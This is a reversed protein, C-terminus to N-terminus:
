WISLFFVEIFCVPWSCIVNAIYYAKTSYFRSERHCYFTGRDLYNGEMPSNAATMFLLMLMTYAYGARTTTGDADGPTNLFLTGVVFGFLVAIIIRIFSGPNRLVLTWGRALLLSLQDRFSRAFEPLPRPDEKAKTAEAVDLDEALKQGAASEAFLRPLDSARLEAATEVGEGGELFAEPRFACRLIFEPEDMGDPKALGLSRFHELADERPGSYAMEGAGTLVVTRHFESYAEVSPQLLSVLGTVGTKEAAVKINQCSALASASDSGDSPTQPNCNLACSILLRQM